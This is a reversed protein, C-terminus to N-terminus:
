KKKGGGLIDGLVGKVTDEIMNQFFEDAVKKAGNPDPQIKPDDLSGTVTLYFPIDTVSAGALSAMPTKTMQSFQSRWGFLPVRVGLDLQRKVLDVTGNSSITFLDSTIDLKDYHLMGNRISVAVPPILATTTEAAQMEPKDALTGLLDSLMGNRKLQLQGLDLDFDAGLLSMDGNVPVTMSKINVSLPTKGDAQQASTLAPHVQSLLSDSFASTVALQGTVPKTATVTVGDWALSPMQVTGNPSTLTVSGAGSHRGINALDLQMNATTGLAAELRGGLNLMSDVIGVPIAKMGGQLDVVPVSTDGALAHLMGTLSIGDQSVAPQVPETGGGQTITPSGLLKLALGEAANTGGFTLKMDRFATQSDGRALLVDDMGIAGSASVDRLDFAKGLLLDLPVDLRDITVGLLSKKNVMTWAQQANRNLKDALRAGDTGSQRLVEAAAAGLLEADSSRLTKGNLFGEVMESDLSYNLQSASVNVAGTKPQRIVLNGTLRPLVPTVRITAPELLSAMTFEPADSSISGGLMDPLAAGDLQITVDGARGFATPLMRHTWGLLGEVVELDVGACKVTGSLAMAGDAGPQSKASVRVQGVSSDRAGNETPTSMVTSTANVTAGSRLGSPASVDFTLERAVIPRAVGPVNKLAIRDITGTLGIAASTWDYRALNSLPIAPTKGANASQSVMSTPVSQEELRVDATAPATLAMPPVDDEASTLALREYIAPTLRARVRGGAILDAGNGAPSLGVEALGHQGEVRSQLSAVALEPTGDEFMPVTVLDAQAEISIVSGFTERVVESLSVGRVMVGSLDAVGAQVNDLVATVTASRRQADLVSMVESQIVIRAPEVSDAGALILGDANVSVTEGLRDTSSTIKLSPIIVEDETGSANGSHLTVAKLEIDTNWAAQAIMEQVSGATLPITLREFAAFISHAGSVRVAAPSAVVSTQEPVLRSLLAETPRLEVRAPNQANGISLMGRDVVGDAVLMMGHSRTRVTFTTRPLGALDLPSGGEGANSGALSEAAGADVAADIEVEAVFPGLADVAWGDLGALRDVLATPIQEGRVTGGWEWRQWPCGVMPLSSGRYCSTLLYRHSQM